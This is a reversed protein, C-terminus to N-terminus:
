IKLHKFEFRQRLAVWALLATALGILLWEEPEPVGTLPSNTAPVTDAIAEYERNYRDELTSLNELLMQQRVDVLVIMSSYPTVIAYQQALAHFRDLTQLEGLADRQRSIEALIAQRAALAMFGDGPASSPVGAAGQDAQDSPLVSWLYGDLIDQYAADGEGASLDLALRQLAQELDGVVGGGSAQIAQLTADDYGLPIDGDLHLMWVPVDISPAEAESPGLEYASGDTLVLVADYVQGASLADFQALLQAPNQGGFYIIGPVDLEQLSVRAPPEGRYASTTLYVDVQATLEQLRSLTSAVQEQYESMSYSRDLVVALRLDDPLAPLSQGAAPLAVVSIGGPLDARHAAPTVPQTAPVSEPLWQDENAHATKGNVLRVTDANWFINRSVALRPLPWADGSALLRYTVWLYLPPADEVIRTTGAENWTMRKPPVPFARLRYQRPGIQELLAPDVNRRTEERYVAQAAGRPAVQFAFRQDRDPSNGLWLGTLTASEPLNFYYIVEQNQSTQNQYVEFLEVEAWDGHESINIEQQLLYVERDDVAQWAAEAETASWTSRVAGVITEREGEVIPTDFFRQYLQAAESPERQFALNDNQSSIKQPHVPQYLLPRAVSEYLGQVQAAAPNTFDLMNIYMDSVHRVEGASSMYRFPALYANLLGARISERQKLLEQAEKPSSPPKELLNFAHAQPQRNTAIFLGAAVILALATLGLPMLWGGRQAQARVTRWWARVSLLPIVVPAIAFLTLTYLALIFGLITPIVWTLGDRFLDVLSKGLGRAFEPLDAFVMSLWDLAVSGLPFAYFAIWVAAYLSTLMMLTLGFLRLYGSLRGRREIEPDLSHWLFAGMGLWTVILLFIFSPTAQRILFFRLALVLMLPGEVVYGLAFLRGPARRLWTLGLIVAVLPIISLVLAFILFNAPITGSRVEVLLEPLIRPAFGLVMFALFIVNWSWFLGYALGSKLTMNSSQNKM